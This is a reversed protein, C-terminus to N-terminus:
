TVGLEVAKEVLWRQRDGKPLAVGLTLKFPLERDIEARALVEVDVESRRCDVVRGQFEAGLGDFLVIEAGVGLRMVHLLHHAEPGDLTVHGSDIPLSSYFRQTM